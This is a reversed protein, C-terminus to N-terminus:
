RFVGGNITQLGNLNSINFNHGDPVIAITWEVQNGRIGHLWLRLTSSSNVLPSSTPSLRLVSNPPIRQPPCLPKDTVLNFIVGVLQGWRVHDSVVDRFHYLTGLQIIEDKLKELKLNECVIDIFTPDADNTTPLNVAITNLVSESVNNRNLSPHLAWCAYFNITPFQPVVGEHEILQRLNVLYYCAVSDDFRIEGNQFRELTRDIIAGYNRM